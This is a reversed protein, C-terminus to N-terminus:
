FASQFPSSLTSLLCELIKRFDVGAMFYCLAPVIWFVLTSFPKPHGMNWYMVNHNSINHNSINHKSIIDFLFITISFITISINHFILLHSMVWFSLLHRTTVSLSAVCSSMLAAKTIRALVCIRRPFIASLINWELFFLYFNPM